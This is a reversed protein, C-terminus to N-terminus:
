NSAKRVVELFDAPIALLDFLSKDEPFNGYFPKIDKLFQKIWDSKDMKQGIVYVESNGEKSTVPKFMTVQKFAVSLLYLLCVSESEFTTFMKEVLNGNAHLINLAAVVESLQLDAVISEQRGPDGQCDISGDATVLDVEGLQSSRDILKALNEQRMLDGTNDDSFDWHDLTGIIFRDNNIM